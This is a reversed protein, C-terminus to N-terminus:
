QLPVLPVLLFKAFLGPECTPLATWGRETCEIGDETERSLVFGDSCQVSLGTLTRTAQGDAIDPTDCEVPDPCDGNDRNLQECNLYFVGEASMLPDDCTGDGLRSEDVCSGMCDRIQGRSCPQSLDIDLLAGTVSGHMLSSSPDDKQAMLQRLMGEAMRHDHAAVAFQILVAVSSLRRRGGDASADSAASLSVVHVDSEPLRLAGAVDSVFGSIFTSRVPSDPDLVEEPALVVVEGVAENPGVIYLIDTPPPPPPPPPPPDTPRDPPSPETARPPPPPDAPRPPPPGVPRPPPPPPSPPPLPAAYPAPASATPPPPGAAAQQPPTPEPPAADSGGSASSVVIVIIIIVVLAGVAAGIVNTPIGTKAKKIEIGNGSGSGSGYSQANNGSGYSQASSGAGSQIPNEVTYQPVSVGDLAAIDHADQATHSQARKRKLIEEPTTAMGPHHQPRWLVEELSLVCSTSPRM